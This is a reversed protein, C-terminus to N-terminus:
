RGAVSVAAGVVHHVVALTCAAMAPQACVPRLRVPARTLRGATNMTATIDVIRTIPMLSDARTLLKMTSSLSAMMKRMTPMPRPCTVM